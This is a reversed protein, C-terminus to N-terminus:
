SLMTSTSSVHMVESSTGCYINKIVSFDVGNWAGSIQVTTLSNGPIPETEGEDVAEHTVKEFSTLGQVLLQGSAPKAGFYFRIKNTSTDLDAFYLIKFTNIAKYHNTENIWLRTNLDLSTKTITKDAYYMGETDPDATIDSATIIVNFKTSSVPFDRNNLTSELSTNTVLDALKTSSSIASGKDTVIVNGDDTFSGTKQLYRADSETKTLYSSLDVTESLKDWHTSGDEERVFVVNAGTDEINYVDGTVCDEAAPLDAMTPVSGKVKYVGGEGYQVEELKQNVYERTESKTYYNELIKNIEDKDIVGLEVLRKKLANVFENSINDDSLKTDLADQLGIIDSINIARNSVEFVGDERRDVIILSDDKHRILTDSLLNNSIEGTLYSSRIFYQDNRDDYLISKNLTNIFTQHAKSDSIIQNYTEDDKLVFDEIPHGDFTRVNVQTEGSIIGDVKENLDSFASDQDRNKQKLLDIQERVTSQDYPIDVARLIVEGTKGNVSRVFHKNDIEEKTYVESRYYFNKDIYEKTYVDSINAKENLLEQLGSDNSIMDAIQKLTEIIDEFESGTIVKIEENVIDHIEGKRVYRDDHIHDVKSYITDHDHDIRAYDDSLYKNIDEKKVYDSDVENKTAYESLDVKGDLFIEKAEEKTVYDTKLIDFVYNVADRIIVLTVEDGTDLMEGDSLAVTLVQSDEDYSVVPKQIFYNNVLLLVSDTNSDYKGTYSVASVPENITFQQYAFSNTPLPFNTERWELVGTEPNAVLYLPNEQNWNEPLPPLEESATGLDSGGLESSDKYVLQYEDNDDLKVAMYVLGNTAESVLTKSLNKGIQDLLDKNPHSHTGLDIQQWYKDVGSEVVYTFYAGSKPLDTNLGEVNKVRVILGEPNEVEALASEMEDSDLDEVRDVVRWVEYPEAQILDDYDSSEFRLTVKEREDPM